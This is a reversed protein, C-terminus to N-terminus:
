ARQRAGLNDGKPKPKGIKRRDTPNLGFKNALKTFHSNAQGALVQLKYYDESAPDMGELRSLMTDLIGYWRCMTALTEADAETLADGLTKVANDWLKAAVRPLGKPKEPTSPKPNIPIIPRTM